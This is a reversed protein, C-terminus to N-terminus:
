GSAPGTEEGLFEDIMLRRITAIMPGFFYAGETGLRRIVEEARKVEAGKLWPQYDEIGRM